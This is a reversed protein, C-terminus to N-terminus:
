LLSDAKSKQPEAPGRKQQPAIPTTPAQPPQSRLAEERRRLDAERRQLEIEAERRRLEAERNLTDQRERQLRLSQENRLRENELRLREGESRQKEAIPDLVTVSVASVSGSCPVASRLGRSIFEPNVSITYTGPRDFTKQIQLRQDADGNQGIRISQDSSDGFVMKVGCWFATDGGIKKTELTITVTQGPRINSPSVSLRQLQQASAASVLFLGLACLFCGLSRATFTTM